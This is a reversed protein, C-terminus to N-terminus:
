SPFLMFYMSSLAPLIGWKFINGEHFDILNRFSIRFIKAYDLLDEVLPPKHIFITTLKYESTPVGQFFEVSNFEMTCYTVNKICELESIDEYFM